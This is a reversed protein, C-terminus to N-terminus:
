KAKGPKKGMLDRGMEDYGADANRASFDLASFSSFNAASATAEQPAYPSLALSWGGPGGAQWDVAANPAGGAQSALTDFAPTAPAAAQAPAAPEGTASLLSYRTGATLDEHMVAFRDADAHEFGLVHGLEHEVVSVLDMHMGDIAALGLSWGAGAADGDILVTRGTTYGLEDGSLPAVGLRVDGFAALRPDGDGLAETWNAIAVTAAADLESQTLTDSSGAAFTGSAVQAAGSTTVFAVDDTKVRVDDFSAAGGKALLGFNGDVTAANFAYGLLVQGNVSVSVTTGKLTVDLTYDTGADVVRSVKADVAWGGKATYHGIIVQDAPADLAVFKFGEDGYRDFVFGAQGATNLRASVELYSSVALRDPGLDLLSMGTGGNPSANYRGGGVSWAGNTYGTFLNAVGDSFDETQDFTIQPPLVQVQVNDFSGRSNNSGVGVLGWNLGYSYGNVIRAQFTHTFAMQNNVVLTANLGNVSLLMNYSTDAKVGGQVAAQDDVHWGTSDRHGIVLKNLSVDIGAFKFDSKNQYDFILFSNANWGATPKIATVSAQVEFYGPLADGVEFVSVADGHLSSASVQLAGNQVNWTGSDAAFGSQATFGGATTATAQAGDFSASRLVDRKGGPINGAQPDRPGGTQDQWAFDQQRVVGLEGFPEGNRLPDAGTDAARTFDAGDSASLAYLFEALQPQLTRSVTGLGFPAFPVLYSNFEGVWDILRDGGTNGILVDRGAGGYARDEYSSNTDPQDNLNGHTSLDDDANLLDDGWGGYLDDRGTGGVLWDNGNDGFIKDEGDTHVTGYTPDTFAPGEGADFNLLFGDILKLPNFEDYQAFEGTTADYGLVNGPNAHAAFFAPLAEAGSIADDGSGGHLWDNGLGGYLIDDSRHTAVSNFEDANANWSADQSFPTLDVAKKLAGTPDTLASQFGGPTSITTQTTALVGNLPEATGNRSTYIRGDDGIVGDDGTGGSVWDNGYGAVIDDDQGDGFLVDDGKQGYVFDDGSEGHVEDAAGIDAAAASSYDVGGPTYDLLEAARPIIRLSGYNDYAFVRNTSAANAGNGTVVRYINGNDGLIMDADRAHANAASTGDSPAGPDNRGIETGAGGFILDSTDPRREPTTLSFLSSNGGVIDDQGLDGFIVDAGGNGEIYDDGDTAAEVSAHARGADVGGALDISGDGQIVDDGRQGFIEDDHAGGAIYDGGNGADSLTIKWNGWVPTGLSSPFNQAGADLSVNGSADYMRGSATRFRPNTFDSVNGARDLAVNDGFILDDQSGGDIRDNGAGGALVDEDADGYITDAGGLTEDTTTARLAYATYAASTGLKTVTVSGFTVRGFDGLVLDNGSNGHVTDGAAGGLVVDDAGNGFITDAGGLGTDASQALDLTAPNGDYGDAASLNFDLRGQDGLITDNGDNAGETAADGYITDGGVGGLVFDGKANGSITDAGGTAEAADSTTLYSVKNGVLVVKGNDGIAYDAGDSADATAAANNGYITDGGTGGLVIDAGANGSLTDAGGLSDIQTLVLDLTARDGDGASFDIKGDDGVIADNGDNSGPAAADGYITDGGLGGLVFDGKANGSITDAGGTAEGTDSTRLYSVTGAIRYIRGNDGLLYDAGDSADATASANNGYLTDGASGGVINDAGANGSITDAGGLGDLSSEILDLTALNGDGGSSGDVYDFDLTGDDGVLTDSGDSAGPAAADGYVTDGGVGALIFDGAANGSITDAGGTSEATDTTHLSTMVGGAYVVQGNDGVLIDAGDASGASAFADDGYMTDGAAGGMVIDAGANGSLTDGAGVGPATTQVFDLKTLGDDGSVPSFDLRGGDGAIIDDGTGGQVTDSGAGGVIVDAGSGGYIHDDGGISDEISWATRPGRFTGDTQDEPLMSVRYFYNSDPQVDLDHDLTLTTATNATITRFQVLGEPSIVQVSLGVLGGYTTPFSAASDTLTLSGEDWSTIPPNVKNQEWTHGLRTVVFGDGNVYDVRGRDGFLTDAGTGGHIQDNGDWGFVVLPLSSAEGHVIDDGEQTNLSLAGNQGDALNVTVTDNGLGTNLMTLTYFPADRRTAHDKWFTTYDVTVHDDGSGLNAQTVEIDGYRIGGPDAFGNIVANPGMGFGTVRGKVTAGAITFESVETVADSGGAASVLTLVKTASTSGNDIRSITWSRDIGPGASIRLTRGVLDAIGHEFASAAAELDATSVTMQDGALSIVMGNSSTLRGTKDAVSGQDYLFMTDIQQREDAFFNISLSTIAYKSTHDPATVAPESTDVQSPNQLTLRTTGDGNDHADNILWFRDYLNRPLSPDLVIGTGPGQTLELTRGKLDELSSVVGLLDATDVVMQDIAGPGPQASPTFSGVLGTSPHVNREQQPQPLLLPEPLSLSGSGSAGELFLPGRIKNLTPVSPVFAQIEDGDVVNDDIASLTVTQAKNWANADATNASFTLTTSLLGNIQVNQKFLAFNELTDPDLGGSRTNFSDLQIAVDALPQQTLVFQVDDTAGGETVDTSGDSEIVVVSAVENDAIDVVQRDTHANNYGAKVYDYAVEVKGSIAEPTSGDPGLFVLTNGSVLFRAAPRAVDDVWVNVTGAVPDDALLLTDIPKEVPIDNVGAVAPDGDLQYRARTQTTDADASTLTHSIYDTHLGQKLSDDVPTVKVFQAQNYNGSNFTLTNGVLTAGSLTVQDFFSDLTVQVDATPARTLVVAYTQDFGSNGEIVQLPRASRTVIAGAQDDDNIQVKVSRVALGDYSGPTTGGVASTVLHNIMAFQKGEAADDHAARFTVTQTGAATFTLTLDDVWNVGDQFQLTKFGQAEEEPGPKQPLVHINVTEGPQPAKTLTITYSDYDWGEAAVGATAAAIDETVSSFGGSEKVVIFPEDNDAVNAAIGDVKVGEYGTTAGTNEVSNLVIGSYGRLDNSTVYIPSDAPSGGTFFTDSGLGGDIETVVNADTSLVFYRDDGEAGDVKLKEINVYTVNLGAGFVGSDTVVFDDSFETGIVIVSDFGDGGDIGVPANVAYKITDAGGDGKMDTRARQDDVSGVLAFARVTFNDDGDGGNLTLSQKNHFVTFDDNGGGGNITMAASIGNSLWGRTIELTAFVDQPLVNATEVDSDRQSKFVQGIQFRDNGEGGNITFVALTDDSAVYDDGYLTNLTIGEINRYNFREIAAGDNNLKAVFATRTTAPVFTADVSSKLGALDGPHADYYGLLDDMMGSPIANPTYVRTIADELSARIAASDDGNTVGLNYVKEILTHLRDLTPIYADAMARLLFVDDDSTGYFTAFDNDAAAGSDYITTFESANGGRTYIYYQDGDAEGDLTDSGFGGFISDAGAGGYVKDNGGDGSLLDDGGEGYITDNESQGYITDNGDGGHITDAGTGGYITDNGAGGTLTDNGGGGFIIDDGAGGTIVDKDGGTSPQLGSAPYADNLKANGILTWGDGFLINSGGGADSLTDFGAEGFIRDNDAGGELTDDGAGGFIYDDGSGGDIDDNGGKKATQTGSVGKNWDVAWAGFGNTLAVTGADGILIDSGGEGRILDSGGAGFLLDDGAGGYLKDDGDNGALSVEAFTDGLTDGDGFVIDRGGGAHITDNGLGGYIVDDGGGGTIQDDGADGHITARGTTAADLTIVDAGAGGSITMDSLVGNVTISDAGEGGEIILKKVHEYRQAHSALPSSVELTEDGAAGSVHTVTFTEAGDSKDGNLRQDAFPGMNLRLEGSDSLTALKAVREFPVEFDVLTIKPTINWTHEFSWFFLDIKLFASLQAFVSGSIDFVALPAFVPDQNIVAEDYINGIMENLRVKGDGDNDHLNFDVEVGIGGAVGASAIGLNLEAAAGVGGFFTLEPIDNGSSDLDTLYFGDVLLEPHTAKSDIFERIGRTDYGFGLDITLGVTGYISVGLPGFIPFFQSYEFQFDLTPLRYEVLALDSKKGLLLNFIQEPHDFLPFSFGGKGNHAGKGGFMSTLAEKAHANASDASVTANAITSQLNGIQDHVKNVLADAKDGLKFNKDWLNVGGPMSVDSADFIKLAGSMLPIALNAEGPDPISNVFDIIDAIGYILGPDVHGFSAALDLLTVPSGALDSIVPIPATIVDIIPQLPETVEKVKQVIPGLVDSVFSGVDLRLDDFEVLQLGDQMANGIDTLNVFDLEPTTRDDDLNWDLLFDALVKPMGSAVGAGVMGPNLGLSLDLEVAAAAKVKAALDLNGIDAFGLHTDSSDASNSLDIAFDATLGTGQFGYAADNETHLSYDNTAQLQLFALAGTLTAGDSLDVTLGVDLDPATPDQPDGIVLYFGDTFNFGFGLHLQWHLDVNLTGDMSLGLGPLGLDFSINPGLNYDGGLTFDWEISAQDAAIGGHLYQDLNTLLEVYDEQASGSHNSLKQLLNLGPKSVTGPGLLDFLVGSIVNMSPDAFNDAANKAAEIAQRYPAVFDTRLKEIFQGGKALQDGILPISTHGFVDGSLLDQLGSLFTDIGQASLLLDDFLSFNALDPLEFDVHIDDVPNFTALDTGPDITIGGLSIGNFAVPLNGTVTGSLTPNLNSLLESLAVKGDSDDDNVTVGFTGGISASGNDISVALPGIAALLNVNSGSFTATGTFATDTYVYIDSLVSAPDSTLAVLDVGFDLTLDLSGTFDLGASGTLTFIGSPLNLDPISLNVGQTVSDSFHFQFKLFQHDDLSLTTPVGLAETLKQALVQLSGAPNSQLSDLASTFKDVNSLLDHISLNVLPIKFSGIAGSGEFADLSSVVQTLVSLLKEWSLDKFNDFLDDLGSTHSDFNIHPAVGNFPDGFDVIQFDVSGGVSFGSVGTSATLALTLTDHGLGNPDVTISPADLLETPDSTLAGVIEALTIKGDTGPSTGPDKLSAGVSVDIAGTATFNVGVFGFNATGTIGSVGTDISLSAHLMDPDGNQPAKIFLRDLLPIGAIAAGTIKGDPKDTSGVADAALIGLKVGADSGNTAQIRFLAPNHTPYPLFTTDTLQLATGDANFAVTVKSSTDREIAAKVDGITLAPPGDATTQTLSVDYTSGDSLTIFLDHHNSDNETSASGLGIQDAHSGSTITFATGDKSKFVLSTGQADVALRGSLGAADLANTVDSVLDLVTKNQSTATGPVTVTVPSESGLTVTFVADAPVSAVEVRGLTVPVDKAARFSVPASPASAVSLDGQFGLERAVISSSPPNLDFSTAATKVTLTLYHSGTSDSGAVDVYPTLDTATTDLTGPHQADTWGIFHHANVLASHFDAALDAATTNTSTASALLTVMYHEGNVMMTMLADASLRGALANQNLDGATFAPNPSVTLPQVLSALTTSDSLTGGPGLDVGFTLDLGADPTITVKGSSQFGGFPGLPLNFNVPFEVAPLGADVQLRFTLKDNAFNAAIVAPDIDLLTILHRAFEQATRFTPAGSANVLKALDNGVKTNGGTDKVEVDYSHSGSADTFDLTLTGDAGFNGPTVTLKRNFHGSVVSGSGDLNMSTPDTLTFASITQDTALLTVTTGDASTPDGQFQFRSALGARSLANNLDTILASGDDAADPKGDSTTGGDFLIAKEFSKVIDLADSLTGSVFPIKFEKFLDSNAADDFRSALQKLLTIMGSPTLNSFSFLDAFDGNQAFDSFEFSSPDFPDASTLVLSVGSPAFASSGDGQTLGGLVSLDLRASLSASTQGFSAGGLSGGALDSLSLTVPADLGLGAHLGIAGDAHVGLFGVTLDGHFNFDAPNTPADIDVSASLDNVKVTFSPTGELALALDLDAHISTAVQLEASADFAIGKLDRIDKGLDVGLTTARTLDFPLHLGLEPTGSVIKLLTTANAILNTGDGALDGIAAEVAKATSSTRLGLKSFANDGEAATIAYNVVNPDIVRFLLRNDETKDALIKGVLSTGGIAANIQQTVDDITAPTAFNVTVPVAGTGDLNVSFHATLSTGFIGSPSFDGIVSGAYHKVGDAIGKLRTELDNLSFTPTAISNYYSHLDARVADIADAFAVVSGLNVAAQDGGFLLPLQSAFDGAAAIQRAWGSLTELDGLLTDLAAKAIGINADDVNEISQLTVNVGSGTLVSSALTLAASIGGSAANLDLTDTGNGGDLTYAVGSALSNVSVVDDQDGAHLTVSEAGSYHVSESGRTIATSSLTVNDVGSTGNVIVADSGTAGADTVNVTASGSGNFAVTYSDAADGGSLNATGSWGSVDFANASGGGTLTATGIGILTLNPGGTASLSTGTLTFTAADKTLVVTDSGGGGDVSGEGTWGSVTFTNAAGGGTLSASEFTGGLSISQAGIALTTDDLTVNQSGIAGATAAVSDGAVEGTAGGNLVYTTSGSLAQLTITDDGDQGNVTLTNAYTGLSQITIHDDGAGANVTVNGPATFVFSEPFTPASVTIAGGSGSITIDAAGSTPDNVTKAGSTADTAPELGSFLFSSGDRDISGTQGDIVTFTVLDFTGDALLLSDDGGAGGDVSAVSGAAHFVFSDQNDAAGELRSFGSFAVGSVEGSNAGSITWTTDPAPGQLTDDGSGELAEVGSFRNGGVDGSGPGTLRWVTRREPGRVRDVGEGGAMTGSLGGAAMVVFVDSDKGGFLNEISAYAVDNVTGADVDSVTWTNAKDAGAISDDGLGGTITGALSGAASFDFRDSGSGGSLNEIESFAVTGVSGADPADITWTSDEDRGVLTDEGSSGIFSGINAFGNTGSAAGARLDITVGSAQQSYDLTNVGAGGDISGSISGGAFIFTDNGAGGRLNEIGAFTQGNLKGADTASIIWVNDGDAAVLTDNGGGGGIAGALQGEPALTFTDEGAGGQVNQVNSFTQANLAGSDTGSITWANAADAGVLTNNGGGGDVATTTSPDLVVFRDDGAGGVVKEVDTFSIDADVTGAGAASLQWTAGQDPGALEDEGGTGGDFAVHLQHALAARDFRVDLRDSRDAGHVDVNVDQDLPTEALVTGSSNDVLRVIAAGDVDDVKLTADLAVGAAATHTLDASLLLRPELTEFRLSRQRHERMPAALWGHKRWRAIRRVREALPSAFIEQLTPIRFGARARRESQRIGM